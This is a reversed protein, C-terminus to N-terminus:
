LKRKALIVLKDYNECVHLSLDNFYKQQKDFENDGVEEPRRIENLRESTYKKIPFSENGLEYYFKKVITILAQRLRELEKDIFTFEPQESARIFQNLDNLRDVDFINGFDFSRIYEISGASPLINQIKTLTEKDKAATKDRKQWERGIFIGIIGVATTIGWQIWDEM